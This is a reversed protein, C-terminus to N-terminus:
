VHFNIKLTTKVASMISQSGFVPNYNNSRIDKKPSRHTKFFASRTRCAKM